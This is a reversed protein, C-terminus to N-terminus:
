MPDAFAALQLSGHELGAKQVLAAPNDSRWAVGALFRSMTMSPKAGLVIRAPLSCTALCTCRPRCFRLCGFSPLCSRVEALVALQAAAVGAVVVVEVQQGDVALGAERAQEDPQPVAAADGHADGVAAEEDLGALLQLPESGAM